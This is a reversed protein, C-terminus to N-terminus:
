ICQHKFELINNKNYQEEKKGPGFVKNKSLNIKMPTYTATQTDDTQRHTQTHTKIDIIEFLKQGIKIFNPM